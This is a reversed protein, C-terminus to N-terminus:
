SNRVPWVLEITAVAYRCDFHRSSGHQQQLNRRGCMTSIYVVHRAAHLRLFRKGVISLEIVKSHATIWACCPPPDKKRDLSVRVKNGPAPLVQAEGGSQGFGRVVTRRSLVEGPRSHHPRPWDPRHLSELGLRRDVGAM